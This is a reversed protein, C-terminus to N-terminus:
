VNLVLTRTVYEIKSNLDQATSPFKKAREFLTNVVSQQQQQIPHESRFNLYRNLQTLKRYVASLLHGNSSRIILKDLFPSCEENEQKM